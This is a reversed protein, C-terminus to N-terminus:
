NRCHRLRPGCHGAGADPGTPPNGPVVGPQMTWVGTSRALGQTGGVLYEGSDWYYVGPTTSFMWRAPPFPPRPETRPPELLLPPQAAAASASVVAVVFALLYRKM